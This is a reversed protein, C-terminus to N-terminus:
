YILAVAKREVDRYPVDFPDRTPNNDGKMVFYTEGDSGIYKDIVRHIISIDQYRYSIIDGIQIEDPSKPEIEIAYSDNSFTPMMSGTPTFKAWRADKINIIVRDNYVEIQSEKITNGPSPIDYIINQNTNSPSEINTKTYLSSSLVGAMFVMSLIAIQIMAKKNMDKGWVIM